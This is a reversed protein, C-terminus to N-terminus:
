HEPRPTRPTRKIYLIEVQIAYLLVAEAEAEYICCSCLLNPTTELKTVPLYSRELFGYNHPKYPTGNTFFSLGISSICTHLAMNSINCLM